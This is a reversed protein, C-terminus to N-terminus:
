DRVCRVYYGLKKSHNTRKISTFTKYLFRLMAYTESTETATWWGVGLSKDYQYGTHNRWGGPLGNFGSSNFAEHDRINGDAWLDYGGAIKAGVPSGRFDLSNAQQETMGLARELNKWDDDTAVRWGEPALGRSDNVAAWNYMYGYTDGLEDDDSWQYWAGTTLSGWGELVKPIADGNRYHEVKLNHVMWDLTGITISEYEIVTNEPYNFVASENMFISYGLGPDLTLITNVGGPIWINGSSSKVIVIEDEITALAETIDMEDKRLYPLTNWGTSLEIDTEEPTIITGQMILTTASSAFISYAKTNNWDGITNINQAPIYIGSGSKVILIDDEIDAFVNEMSMDDLQVFSSVTNWGQSLNISLDYCFATNVTVSFLLFTFFLKM